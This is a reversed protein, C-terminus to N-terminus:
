KDGENSKSQKAEIRMRSEEDADDGRENSRTGKVEKKVQSDTEIENKM